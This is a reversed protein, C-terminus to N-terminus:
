LGFLKKVGDVNMEPSLVTVLFWTVAVPTLAEAVMGTEVPLLWVGVLVVLPVLGIVFRRLPGRPVRPRHALEARLLAPDARPLDALGGRAWGALAMGVRDVDERSARGAPLDACRRLELLAAAVREVVESIAAGGPKARNLLAPLHRRVDEASSELLTWIAGAAELPRDAVADSMGRTTPTLVSLVGILDAVVSAELHQSTWARRLTAANWAVLAVQAMTLAVMVCVAAVGVAVPRVGAAAPIVGALVAVAFGVGASLVL